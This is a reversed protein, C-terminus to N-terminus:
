PKCHGSRKDYRSNVTDRSFVFAQSFTSTNIASDRRAFRIPVGYHAARIHLTPGRTPDAYGGDAVIKRDLDSYPVTVYGANVDSALFGEVSRYPSQGEPQPPALGMEVQIFEQKSLDVYVCQLLFDAATVTPPPTKDIRVFVDATTIATAGDLVKLNGSVNSEPLLPDAKLLYRAYAKMPMPTPSSFSADAWTGIATQYLFDAVLEGTIGAPLSSLDASLKPTCTASFNLMLTFVQHQNGFRLGSFPSLWVNDAPMLSATIPGNICSTTQASVNMSFLSLSVTAACALVSATFKKSMAFM